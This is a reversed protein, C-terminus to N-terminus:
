YRYFRIGTKEGLEVAGELELVAFKVYLNYMIKAEDQWGFDYVYTM